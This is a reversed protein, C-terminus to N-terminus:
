PAALGSYGVLRADVLRVYNQTEAFPPVQNGYRRVAGEGANYAATILTWDDNFLRRLYVLYRAATEVNVEPDHLQRSDAVGFRQATAPMLQMLGVAGKPSIANRNFASETHMVAKLYHTDLNYSEAVRQIVPLYAEARAPLRVPPALPLAAPRATAVAAPWFVIASPTPAWRAVAPRKHGKTAAAECRAFFRYDAGPHSPLRYSKGQHDTCQVAAWAAPSASAFVVALALM